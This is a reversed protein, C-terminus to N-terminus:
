SSVAHEYRYMAVERLRKATFGMVKWGLTAIQDLPDDTGASGFPKAIIKFRDPTSNELQGPASDIYPEGYADQGIVITAHVTITSSFTKNNTTLLFRIGIDPLAGVENPYAMAPNPYKHTGIYGDLQEVDHLTEPGIFAIYSAGIPTTGVGVAASILPAIPKVNQQRFYRVIARFDDVRVKNSAAVGTRATVNPAGSYYVNTGATLIDRTITDLRENLDQSLLMINSASKASILLEGHADFVGVQDTVPIYDGEEALTASLENLTPTNSDPVTGETISSTPPTLPDFYRFTITMGSNPPMPERKAFRGFITTKGWVGLMAKRYFLQSSTSALTTTFPTVTAM